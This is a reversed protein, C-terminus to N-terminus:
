APEYHILSKEAGPTERVTKLVAALDRDATVLEDGNVALWCGPYEGAHDRLWARERDLNRRPEGPVVTVKPPDLVRAWHRVRDEDPWRRAMERALSRAEEVDGETLSSKLQELLADLSPAETTQGTEIV